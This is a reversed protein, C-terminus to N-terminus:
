QIFFIVEVDYAYIILLDIVDVLETFTPIFECFYGSENKAQIYYMNQNEKYKKDNKNPEDTRRQM